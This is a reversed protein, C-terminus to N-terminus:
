GNRKRRKRRTEFTCIVDDTLRDIRARTSASLGGTAKANLGIRASSGGDNTEDDPCIGEKRSGSPNATGHRGDLIGREIMRDILPDILRLVTADAIREELTSRRRRM